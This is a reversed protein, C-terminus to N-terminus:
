GRRGGNVRWVQSFGLADTAPLCGHRQRENWLVEVPLGANLGFLTGGIVNRLRNRNKLEKIADDSPNFPGVATLSAKGPTLIFANTRVLRKREDFYAYGGLLLFFVWPEVHGEVTIIEDLKGSLCEIQRSASARGLAVRGASLCVKM